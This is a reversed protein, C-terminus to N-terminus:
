FSETSVACGKRPAEEPPPAQDNTLLLENALYSTSFHCYVPLNPARMIKALHACPPVNLTASSVEPNLEFIDLTGFMCFVCCFVFRFNVTDQVLAPLELKHFLPAILILVSPHTCLSLRIVLSM